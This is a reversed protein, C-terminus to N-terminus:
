GVKETKYYEEFVFRISKYSNELAHYVEKQTMWRLEEIDEELSPKSNSDDVLAMEYWKTKKLMSNKNMTYTHWTTCIKKGLKVRVNCEEEVERVATEASREGSERKGKPLDWKKMRYIMLFKDKKKILGGAAKIVKYKGKLYQKFAEYDTISVTLSLLNIPVKSNILDFVLDMDQVSAQNLWVHHLLKAKNIPEMSANIEVNFHGAVPREEPLLIRVPIDNVFLNM